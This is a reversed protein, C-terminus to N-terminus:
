IGEELKRSNKRSRRIQTVIEVANLSDDWSGFLELLVLASTKKLVIKKEKAPKAM